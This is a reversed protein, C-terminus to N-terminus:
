RINKCVAFYSSNLIHTHTYAPIGFMQIGFSQILSLALQGIALDNLTLASNLILYCIIKVFVLKVTKNNMIWSRSMTSLASTLM